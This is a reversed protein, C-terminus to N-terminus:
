KSRESRTTPVPNHDSTRLGGSLVNGSAKRRSSILGLDELRAISEFTLRERATKAESESQTRVQRREDSYKLLAWPVGFLAVLAAM